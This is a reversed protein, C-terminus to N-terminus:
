IFDREDISILLIFIYISIMIFCGFDKGMLPEDIPDEEMSSDNAEELSFSESIPLSCSQECLAVQAFFNFISFSCALGYLFPSIGVLGLFFYVHPNLSNVRNLLKIVGLYVYKITLYVVLFASVGFPATFCIVIFIQLNHNM